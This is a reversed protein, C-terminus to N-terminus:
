TKTDAVFYDIGIMAYANNFLDAAPGDAQVDVLEIEKFDGGAAQLHFNREVIYAGYAQARHDPIAFDVLDDGKESIALTVIM